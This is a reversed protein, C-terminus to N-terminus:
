RQPIHFLVKGIVSEVSILGFDRSDVSLPHSGSVFLQDKGKDLSSVTKILRGHQPHDFIVKDGVQIPFFFSSTGVLVYDGEQIAPSLSKGTVRIIKLM